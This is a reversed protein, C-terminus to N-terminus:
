SLANIWTVKSSLGEYLETLIKWYTPHKNQDLAKDM